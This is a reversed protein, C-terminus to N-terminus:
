YEKLEKQFGANIDVVSRRERLIKYAEDFSLKFKKMMYSCLIAPSRSMGGKCHVLVNEENEIARDIFVEVERFFPLIKEDKSDKAEIFLHRGALGLEVISDSIKEKDFSKKDM